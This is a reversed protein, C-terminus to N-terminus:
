YVMTLARPLIEFRFDTGERVLDGHTQLYEKKTTTINITRGTRYDGARNEGCSTSVIGYILQAPSNITLLHLNGDDLKAKRVMKFGYGYFPIKTVMLSFARPVEITENDIIVKADPGKYGGLLSKIMARKYGTLGELGTQVYKLREQIIRGDIGVSAFMAKKRGDCLILDISRRRGDRIQKAVTPISQPLNLSYHLAKGSGLPLYSLAVKDLDVSNIVASVTGDGGAVILVDVREALSRACDCLETPSTTGLGAVECDALIDSAQKLIRSKEDISSQGAAPNVVIGYKM